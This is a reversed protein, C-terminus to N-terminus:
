RCVGQKERGRSVAQMRSAKGSVSEDANEDGEEEGITM